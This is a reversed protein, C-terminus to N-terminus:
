GKRSWAGCCCGARRRPWWKQRVADKMGDNEFAQEALLEKLRTNESELDKSFGHQRCLGKIPMDAKAKRLFGIIQEESARKKM